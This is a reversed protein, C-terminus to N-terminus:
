QDYYASNIGIETLNPKSFQSLQQYEQMAHRFKIVTKFERPSHGIHEKFRRLITKNSVNLIAGMSSLDMSPDVHLLQTVLHKFNVDKFGTFRGVFYQDLLHRKVDLDPELYLQGALQSLSEGFYSFPTVLGNVLQKLSVEIFHNLGLPNFVVGIKYVMGRMTVMQSRQQNSTYLCPSNNGQNATITRGRGDWWVDAHRYINIVDQHNPYYIVQSVHKPDFTQHFYYYAIHPKLLAEKPQISLFTENGISM